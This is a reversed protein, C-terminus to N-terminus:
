LLKVIVHIKELQIQFGYIQSNKLIIFNANRATDHDM